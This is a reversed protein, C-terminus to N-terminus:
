IRGNCSPKKYHGAIFTIMSGRCRIKMVCTQREPITQLLAHAADGGKRQTERHRPGVHEEDVGLLVSWLVFLVDVGLHTLVLDLM